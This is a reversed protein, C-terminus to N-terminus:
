KGIEASFTGALKTEPKQPSALYLKGNLQNSVISDFEVRAVANSSMVSVKSQGTRDKWYFLAAVIPITSNTPVQYNGSADAHANLRLFFEVGSVADTGQNLILIRESLGLAASDYKFTKGELTGSVPSLPIKVSSPGAAANSSQGTKLTSSDSRIPEPMAGPTNGASPPTTPAAEISLSILAALVAGGTGRLAAKMGASMPKKQTM